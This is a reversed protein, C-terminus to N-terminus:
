KMTSASLLLPTCLGANTLEASSVESKPRFITLLLKLLGAFPPPLAARPPPGPLPAPATDHVEGYTYQASVTPWAAPMFLLWHRVSTTARLRPEVTALRRKTNWWGPPLRSPLPVTAAVPCRDNSSTTANRPPVLLM